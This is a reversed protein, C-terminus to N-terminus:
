LSSEGLAYDNTPDSNSCRGYVDLYDLVLYIGSADFLDDAHNDLMDSLIQPLCARLDDERLLAINPRLERMESHTLLESESFAMRLLGRVEMKSSPQKATHGM